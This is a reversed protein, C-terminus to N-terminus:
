AYRSLYKVLLDLKESIESDVAQQPLFKILEYYRGKNLLRPEHVWNALKQLVKDLFLSLKKNGANNIFTQKQLAKDLKLYAAYAEDDNNLIDSLITENIAKKLSVMHRKIQASKLAQKEYHAQVFNEIVEPQIFYNELEYKKWYVIALDPKIRNKLGRNDGDFLAIGTLAPLCAKLAYFHQRYDQYYGTVKDIEKEFSAVPETDQVYYYNLKDTLLINAPHDLLEAFAKLMELDTSGEVYVISNTMKAKYYHEIGFNQLAEKIPLTKSLNIAEGDLLMVLNNDIANELIVESHTAIIIQNGKKEALHNLVTFMQRQRLIELHADPEDLLLISEKHLILYAIFLLMQQQGRGAVAIDLGNPINQTTYKLEISGRAKLYVPKNLDIQFLRKMLQTVIQWDNENKEVIQYCFNRLIESTKGEGILVNIRGEQILPEETIMGSIPYLMAIKLENIYNLLAKNQRTKDDPQCYIVEPSSYKFLATCEVVNGQFALGVTISMTIPKNKERIALNQWFYRTHSVPLQSIELRNLGVSAGNLKEQSWKKLGLHWLYLAQIVTTKGSNNPGILVSPLEFELTVEDGFMKFNHIKLYHIKKM